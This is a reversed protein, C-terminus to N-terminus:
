RLLVVAFWQAPDTMIETVSWGTRAALDRFETLDYKHSYETVIFEGPLFDVSIRDAGEACPRLRVTQAITSVLRM